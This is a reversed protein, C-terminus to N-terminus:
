AGGAAASRAGAGVAPEARSQSQPAQQKAFHFENADILLQFLDQSQIGQSSDRHTMGYAFLADLITERDGATLQM